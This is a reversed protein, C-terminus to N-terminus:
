VRLEDATCDVPTSASNRKEWDKTSCDWIAKSCIECLFYLQWVIHMSFSSLLCNTNSMHMSWSGPGPWNYEWSMLLAILLPQHVTGKGIRSHQLRLYGKCMNWIPVFIAMCYANFSSLLCDLTVWIGPCRLHEELGHQESNRWLVCSGDAHLLPFVIRLGSITCLDSFVIINQYQNFQCAAGSWKSPWSKTNRM